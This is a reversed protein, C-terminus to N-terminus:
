RKRKIRMMMGGDPHLTVLPKTIIKQGPVISFDYQRILHALIIQMEMLAFNNGICLRPGGGFPIYAYKTHKKKNEKSFREPIFHHAKPWLNEDRHMGYIFTLVISDKPILYGDIVDDAVAIRDTIWAPPYLRMSEDIVQRNYVLNPLDAFTIEKRDGLVRDVEERLKQVEKPHQALLYWLWTMANATTEHGAVFLILSEDRLQQDTMGEGTDEYRSKMLMDLLDHYEEGNTQRRENITRFIIKDSLKLMENYFQERGILHFLPKLYPQRTKSVFYAQIDEITQEIQLLEDFTVSTGFLSRSVIRFTLHMMYKKMDFSEFQDIYPEFSTEFDRVENLMDSALAALKPRHFGPQILRRQKLWYEGESTLLGKGVYQALGETQVETKHYIKNKKQLVQQIYKPDSLIILEQNGGLRISFINGYKRKYPFFVSIPNRVAKQINKISESYPVRPISRTATQHTESM